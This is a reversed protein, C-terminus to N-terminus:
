RELAWVVANALLRNFDDSSFDSVHGLSTYFVRHNGRQNTWAVPETPHDPITGFILPQASKALPSVQYLSGGGIFSTVSVGDLIAHGTAGEALSLVSTVGNAHHGHYNGGLVEGDFAQWEDHGEPHEGKTHFAHSATRIGVVPKGAAVFERVLDLEEKPLSRRRVSVFLLDATKLAALGAFHNKDMEDAHIITSRIGRPALHKEAFVPLTVKTEYEQEGIMFVVHPQSAEAFVFPPKGTFTTSTITPCWYKEIHEIVFETGKTHPVYPKMRSNYMTDTMDRMLVVNQGQNVMQRISFPRGLVCMNTHVGMVIVNDIGCQKMLYFAESNDTIADGEVIKIADIQRSWAQYNKCPPWCDCGGDSDDIPLAAEHDKDLYCWRELPVQTEVAPAQQALKRMPTEKYYDLCSSPCHIILVGKNRADAIVENMRGAMEGVRRTAGVCWHKDWMDCVVIATKKAEWNLSSEVVSFDGSVQPIRHRAPLELTSEASSLSGPCAIAIAILLTTQWLSSQRLPTHMSM